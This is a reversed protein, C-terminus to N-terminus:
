SPRACLNYVYRMRLLREGNGTNRQPVDLVPAGRAALRKAALEVEPPFARAVGREAATALAAGLPALAAAAANVGAYVPAFTPLVAVTPAPANTADSADRAPAFALVEVFPAERRLLTIPELEFSGAGGVRCVIGDLLAIEVTDLGEIRAIAAASLATHPVSAVIANGDADRLPWRLRQAIPDFAPPEYGVPRVVAFADLANPERLGLASTRATMVRQLERWDSFDSQGFRLAAPAVGPRVTASTAAGSGIRGARNIGASFLTVAAGALQAPTRCGPWPGPAEYRARADFHAHYVPRSETWTLWRDFAPAYLLVTLGAYGSGTRWPFAGAGILELKPVSEYRSRAEGAIHEPLPEGRALHTEVSFALAYATAFDDLLRIEDAREDRAAFGRVRDAITRLLRALRYLEAGTAAVALTVFREEHAASLHALGIDVCEATIARVTAALSRREAVVDASRRRSSPIPSAPDPMAAGHARQYGLVAAVVIRKPDRSGSEVIAADLLPGAFRAAAPPHAFTVVLNADGGIAVDDDEPNDALLRLAAAYTAGGAWAALTDHSFAMLAAHVTTAPPVASQPLARVALAASLIHRCVGAALCDCVAGAPGRADFRVTRGDVAYVVAREDASVLAPPSRELDKRARRLLGANALAIFAADDFRGLLAALEDILAM